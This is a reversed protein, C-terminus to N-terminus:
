LQFNWDKQCAPVVFWFANSRNAALTPAIDPPRISISARETPATTGGPSISSATLTLIMSPM